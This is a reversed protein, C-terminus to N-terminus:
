LVMPLHTTIIQGKQITKEPVHIVSEQLYRHQHLLEQPTISDDNRLREIIQSYTRELDNSVMKSEKM